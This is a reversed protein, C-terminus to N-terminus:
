PRLSRAVENLCAYKKSKWKNNTTTGWDPYGRTKPKSYVTTNPLTAQETYNSRLFETIQESNFAPKSAPKKTKKAVDKDKPHSPPLPSRVPASIKPKISKSSNTPSDSFATPKTQAKPAAKAAAAAWGTLKPKHAATSM